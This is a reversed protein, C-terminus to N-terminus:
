NNFLYFLAYSVEPIGDGRAILTGSMRTVGPEFRLVNTGGYFEKDGDPAVKYQVEKAVLSGGTRVVVVTLSESNEQLCLM